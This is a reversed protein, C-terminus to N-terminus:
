GRYPIESRTIKVKSVDYGSDRLLIEVYTRAREFEGPRACITPGIIIDTLANAAPTKWDHEVFPTYRGNARRRCRIVNSLTKYDRVAWTQMFRYESEDLYSSHKHLLSVTLCQLAYELVYPKMAEGEADHPLHRAVLEALKRHREQLAEDDYQISFTYNHFPDRHGTKQLFGGKEMIGTRFGMAFGNGNDAYARWKDLHDGRPSFATVFFRGVDEMGESLDKTFRYAFTPLVPNTARSIEEQLASTAYDMGHRLEKPDNLCFIDTLRISGHQLIGELGGLDTYHYVKDPAPEKEIQAYIEGVYAGCEARFAKLHKDSTAAAHEAIM